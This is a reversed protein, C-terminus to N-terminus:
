DRHLVYALAAASCLSALWPTLAATSALRLAALDSLSAAMQTWTPWPGGSLAIIGGAVAGALTWREFRRGQRARRQLEAQAQSPTLVVPLRRVVRASFGDDPIPEPRTAWLATDLWDVSAESDRSDHFPTSM